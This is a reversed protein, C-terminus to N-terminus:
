SVTVFVHVYTSATVKGYYFDGEPEGYGTDYEYYGKHHYTNGDIEADDYDVTVEDIGPISKECYASFTEDFSTISSNLGDRIEEADEDFDEEDINGSYDFPEEYEFELQWGGEGIPRATITPKRKPNARGATAFGEEILPLYVDLVPKLAACMVGYCENSLRQLEKEEDEFKTLCEALADIDAHHKKRIPDKIKSELTVSQMHSKAVLEELPKLFKALEEDYFDCDWGECSEDCVYSWHSYISEISKMVKHLDSTLAAVKPYLRDNRLEAGVKEDAIKRFERIQGRLLVADRRCRKLHQDIEAKQQIAKVMLPDLFM